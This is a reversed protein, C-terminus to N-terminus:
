KSFKYTLWIALSRQDVSYLDTQKPTGMQQWRIANLPSSKSGLIDYGIISIKVMRGVQFHAALSCKIIPKECIDLFNYDKNSQEASERGKLNWFVRLNSNLTLWNFHNSEIFFKTLNAALNKFNSGDNSIGDKVTQLTYKQSGNIIPTYEYKGNVLSSDYIGSYSPLEYETTQNQNTAFMQQYTHNIGIKFLKASYKAELDINIFNYYGGNIVRFLQQNWVFLNKINNFSISSNITLKDTINHSSLLELSQSMEPKLSQLDTISVPSLVNTNLNPKQYPNEFRPKDLPNGNDDISNRGYEYNDTSGNNASSQYIIKITNNENIQSILGLKPTFIGGQNITRTHADYRCGLIISAKKSLKILGEAFVSNNTYIINKVVYHRKNENGMNWGDMDNGIDFLRFQYGIALKLKDNTNIVYITRINYRREGFTEPLKINNNSAGYFNTYGLEGTKMVLTRNTVMDFGADIKLQNFGINKVYTVQNSWNKILYQRRNMNNTEVNKYFPDNFSITKGDIIQNQFTSDPLRGAWPDLIFYGSANTIQNTYRSYISLNKYKLDISGRFNGPTNYAGTTTPVGNDHISSPSSWDPYPSSGKGYIRNSGFNTGESMKIGGSFTIKTIDNIIKNANFELSGGNAKGYTQGILRTEILDKSFQKTVVNVVGAIAGSGYLLGAPGRLVEIREIDGLLGLDQETMAGDRSEMNMQHGNVLFIMKTNRDAAVGRMGWITGNWKNVMYQFGPLYLELVESLTRTGSNNIQNNDIITISSSLFKKDIDLFSGTKVPLAIIDEVSMTLMENTLVEQETQYDSKKTSDSRLEQSFINNFMGLSFLCFLLSTAIKQAYIKICIM